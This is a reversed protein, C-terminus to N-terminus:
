AARTGIPRGSMVVTGTLAKRQEPTVADLIRQREAELRELAGWGWGEAGDKLETIRISIEFFRRFTDRDAMSPDLNMAM